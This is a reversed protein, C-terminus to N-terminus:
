PCGGTGRTRAAHADGDGVVRLVALKHLRHEPQHLLLVLFVAGLLHHEVALHDGGLIHSHLVGFPVALVAVEHRAVAVVGVEVDDLVGRERHEVLETQVAGGVDLVEGAARRQMAVELLVESLLLVALQEFHGGLFPAVVEGEIDGVGDAVVTAVNVLAVELLAGVAVRLIDVVQRADDAVQASDGVEALRALLLGGAAVIGGHLFFGLLSLHELVGFCINDKLLNGVLHRQRHVQRATGTATRPAVGLMQPAVHALRQRVFGEVLQQLPLRRSDAAHRQHTAVGGRGLHVANGRAELLAMRSQLRRPVATPVQDGRRHVEVVEVIDFQAGVQRVEAGQFRGLGVLAEVKDLM